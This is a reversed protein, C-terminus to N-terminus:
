RNKIPIFAIGLKSFISKETPTKVRVGNKWLGYENLLFGMEQARKRMKINFFAPGTFYLKATPFEIPTFIRIDMGHVYSLHSKYLIRAKKPGVSFQDRINKNAELKSIIGDLTLNQHGDNVILVDIDRSFPAKRAYSGVIYINRKFIKKLRKEIKIMDKYAIPKALDKRNNYGIQQSKTLVIKKRKVLSDFQTPTKINYKIIMNKISIDGLGYIKHIYEYVKFKPHNRLSHIIRLDGTKIIEQIKELSKKGVNKMGMVNSLTLKIPFRELERLVGSYAVFRFHDGLIRYINKLETFIKIIDENGTKKIRRM